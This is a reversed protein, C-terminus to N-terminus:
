VIEQFTLLPWSNNSFFLHFKLYLKLAAYSIFDLLTRSISFLKKFSVQLSLESQGFVFGHMAGPKGDISNATWIRDDPFGFGSRFALSSRSLAIQCRVFVGKTRVPHICPIPVIDICRFRLFTILLCSSNACHSLLRNEKIIWFSLSVQTM